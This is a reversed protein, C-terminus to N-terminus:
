GPAEADRRLALLADALPALDLANAARLRAIPVAPLAALGATAGAMAGAIAGITDTDDGINAAIVVAAWPDGGALRVVGFAAAVSERSAVSTGIGEALAAEGQGALDLALAIRGAMDPDGAPAGRRNGARAAALAEPLSAEFSRGAVGQSVVSAVAAAAAIAEGTNHTVRCCAEVRDLLRPGPPTAIGVPTIRMAAGNTTGCRGAEAPDAGSLLADLAARTSPGLLDSLGRRRIDAEWALLDSAWGVPDFGDPAALLRRALLLSQETDDTVQGARLGHAVPHGPLPAVLSEIRGYAARIRARDLTQAPMGMADGLALGYLAGLARDQHAAPVPNGM